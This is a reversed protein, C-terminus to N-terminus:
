RNRILREGEDVLDVAKEAYRRFSDIKGPPLNYHRAIDVLVDMESADIEGDAVAMTTAELLLIRKSIPNDFCDLAEYFEKESRPRAPWETGGMEKQVLHLLWSENDDVVGDADIIWRAVKAFARKQEASLLSLFM